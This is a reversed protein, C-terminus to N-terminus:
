ILNSIRSLVVSDETRSLVDVASLNQRALETAVLFVTESPVEYRRAISFLSEGLSILTEQSEHLHENIRDLSAFYKIDEKSAPVLTVKNKFVEIKPLLSVVLAAGLTALFTKRNM